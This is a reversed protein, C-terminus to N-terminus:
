STLNHANAHTRTHTHTHRQLMFRALESDPKADGSLLTRTV